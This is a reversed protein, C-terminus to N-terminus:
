GFTTFGLSIAPSRVFFFLFFFLICDLHIVQVREGVGLESRLSQCIAEVGIFGNPVLSVACMAEQCM